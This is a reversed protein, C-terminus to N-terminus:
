GRDPWAAALREGLRDRESEDLAPGEANYGSVAAGKLHRPIDAMRPVLSFHLHKTGEAFLMAYTKVSGVVDALARTGDALVRGLSAEEEPTLDALSEVHRRCIVLLWGALAGKNAVVRWNEAVFVRERAPLDAEIRENDACFACDVGM